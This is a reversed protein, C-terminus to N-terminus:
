GEQSERMVRKAIEIDPLDNGDAIDKPNVNKMWAKIINKHVYQRSEEMVINEIEEKTKENYGELKAYSLVEKFNTEMTYIRNQFGGTKPIRKTEAPNIPLGNDRVMSTEDNLIGKNKIKAVNDEGIEKAVKDLVDNTIKFGKFHNDVSLPVRVYSKNFKVLDNCNEIDLPIQINEVKGGNQFILVERMTLPITKDKRHKSLYYLTYKLVDVTGKVDALADHANEMGKCYLWQYQNSLKKRAGLYPHIRQILIFPDLVKHPEKEKILKREIETTTSNSLKYERIANNLLNMDFKSNYAVIVGNSKKMHKSLFEKLVGLITPKDKVMEDTIGNVASAGEPIPIEPNILENYIGGEDKVIKGNKVQVSALQIIKDFKKVGTTETDFVICDLSLKGEKNTIPIDLSKNLYPNLLSKLNETFVKKASKSNLTRFVALPKTSNRNNYRKSWTGEKVDSALTLAHWYSCIENTSAKIIDLPERALQEHGVKLMDIYNGNFLGEGQYLKGTVKRIVNKELWLGTFNPQVQPYYFVNSLTNNQPLVATSFPNSMAKPQFTKQKDNYAIVPTIRM